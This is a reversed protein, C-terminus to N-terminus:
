ENLGLERCLAELLISNGNPNLHINDFRWDLAEEAKLLRQTQFLRINQKEACEKCVEEVARWYQETRDLSQYSLNNCEPEELSQSAPPQLFLIRCNPLTERMKAFLARLDQKMEEVSLYARDNATLCLLILEPRYRGIREEFHELFFRSMQSGKGNLTVERYKAGVGAVTIKPKEGRIKEFSVTHGEACARCPLVLIMPAYGAFFEADGATDVDKKVTVGDVCVDFVCAGDLRTQLYLVIQGGTENVRFSVKGNPYLTRVRGEFLATFPVESDNDIGEVFDCDFELSDALCFADDQMLIRDRLRFPWSPIGAGCEYANRRPTPDYAYRNYSLSDGTILIRAGNRNWIESYQM